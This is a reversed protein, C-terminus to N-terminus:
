DDSLAFDFGQLVFIAPHGPLPSGIPQILPALSDVRYGTQKELATRIMQMAEAQTLTGTRNVRVSPLPPAVPPPSPPPTSDDGSDCSAVLFLGLILTLRKM